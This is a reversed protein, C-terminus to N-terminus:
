NDSMDAEHKQAHVLLDDMNEGGKHRLMLLATLTSIKLTMAKEFQVSSENNDVRMLKVDESRLEDMKKEGSTFGAAVTRNAAFTKGTDSPEDIKLRTPFLENENRSGELIEHPLDTYCDSESSEFSWLKTLFDDLRANEFDKDTV